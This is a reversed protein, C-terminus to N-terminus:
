NKELGKRALVPNTSYGAILDLKKNFSKVTEEVIESMSNFNTADYERLKKFDKTMEERIVEIIDEFKEVFDNKTEDEFKDLRSTFTDNIEKIKKDLAVVTEELEEIRKKYFM